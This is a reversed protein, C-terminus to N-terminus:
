RNTRAHRPVRDRGGLAAGDAEAGPDSTLSEDGEELTVASITATGRDVEPHRVPSWTGESLFGPDVMQKPQRVLVVGLPSSGTGGLADLASAADKSKTRGEEIVLLSRDAVACVVQGEVSEIPPADIVVLDAFLMGQSVLGQVNAKSFLAFLDDHQAGPPGVLLARGNTYISADVGVEGREALFDAVGPLAALESPLPDAELDTQLLLTTQGQLARLGALALAVRSKSARTTYPGTIALSGPTPMGPPDTLGMLSRFLESRGDGSSRRRRTGVVALVPLGLRDRVEDATVIRREFRGLLIALLAGILLGGVLAAAVNRKAKSSNTDVGAALQLDQLQNTGIRLTRIADQLQGIEQPANQAQAVVLQRELEKITAANNGQLGTNVDERLAIAMKTAATQALHPTDATAEVYLIPSTAALRANLVAAAPVGASRRLRDQSSLENFYDAYGQALVADQDPSRSQSVITLVARGTYSTGEHRSAALAGAAAVLGIVLVMVWRRRIRRWQLLLPSM